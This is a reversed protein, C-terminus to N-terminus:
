RAKPADGPEPETADGADAAGAQGGLLDPSVRLVPGYFRRVWDESRLEPPTPPGAPRSVAAAAAEDAPEDAGAVGSWAGLVLAAVAAVCWDATLRRDAMPPM